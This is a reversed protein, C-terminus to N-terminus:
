LEVVEIRWLKLTGSGAVNPEIGFKKGEPEKTRCAGEEWLVRRGM